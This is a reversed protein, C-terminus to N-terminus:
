SEFFFGLCLKCSCAPLGMQRNWLLFMVSFSTFFVFYHVAKKLSKFELPWLTLTFCRLCPSFLVLNVVVFLVVILFLFGGVYQIGEKKSVGTSTFPKLSLLLDLWHVVSAVVLGLVPKASTSQLDCQCASEKIICTFHSLDLNTLDPNLGM